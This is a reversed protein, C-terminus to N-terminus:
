VEQPAHRAMHDFFVEIEADTGSFVDEGTLVDKVMHIDSDGVVVTVRQRLLAIRRSVEEETPEV